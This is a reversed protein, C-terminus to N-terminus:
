NLLDFDYDRKIRDRPFLGAGDLCACQSLKFVLFRQKSHGKVPIGRVERAILTETCWSDCQLSAARVHRSM